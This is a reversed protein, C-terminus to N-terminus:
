NIGTGETGKDNYTQHESSEQNTQKIFNMISM